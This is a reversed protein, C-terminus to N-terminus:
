GKTGRMASLLRLVALMGPDDHGISKSGYMRARGLKSERTRFELLCAQAAVEAQPLLNVDDTTDLHREIALLSDIVCKDGATAGSRDCVAKAAASLATVVDSRSLAQKGRVTRGAASLGIAFVSGLSSGTCRSTESGLALLAAGVDSPLAAAIRSWGAVVQAVTMGTDGDGLHRDAANLEERIEAIGTDMSIVAEIIRAVTLM